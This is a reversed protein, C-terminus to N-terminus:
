YRLSSILALLQCVQHHPAFVGDAVVTGFATKSFDATSDAPTVSLIGTARIEYHLTAATDFVFYLAYRRNHFLTLVQSILSIPSVCEYNGVTVILQFVLERARTVDAKGTRINTHKWGL